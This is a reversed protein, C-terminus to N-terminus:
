EKGVASVYFRLLHIGLYVLSLVALGILFPAFNLVNNANEFIMSLNRMGPNSLPAHRFTLALGIVEGTAWMGAIMSITMVTHRGVRRWAGPTKRRVRLYYERIPMWLAIILYFLGGIGTGPLGVLM